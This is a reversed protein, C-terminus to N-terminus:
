NEIGEDRNREEVKKQLEERRAIFEPDKEQLERLKDWMPGTVELTWIYRGNTVYQEREKRLGKTKIVDVINARRIMPLKPERVLTMNDSLYIKGLNEEPIVWEMFDFFKHVLEKIDAKNYLRHSRSNDIDEGEALGHLNDRNFRSCYFRDIMRNLYWYQSGNKKNQYGNESLPVFRVM